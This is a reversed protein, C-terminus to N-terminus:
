RRRSSAQWPWFSLRQLNPNNFTFGDAGVAIYGHLIEAAQEPLMPPQMALREPPIRATLDRAEAADGVLM